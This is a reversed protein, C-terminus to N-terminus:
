RMNMIHYIIIPFANAAKATIVAPIPIGKTNEWPAFGAIAPINPNVAPYQPVNIVGIAAFKLITGAATNSVLFLYLTIIECAGKPITRNM